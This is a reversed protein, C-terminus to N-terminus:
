GLPPRRYRGQRRRPLEREALKRLRAMLQRESPRRSTTATTITIEEGLRGELDRFMEAFQEHARGRGIVELRDLGLLKGAVEGLYRDMEELHRGETGHGPVSGGGDPRAPGRRISGVARRRPVVGSEIREVVPEGDWRVVLAQQSDMWVLAVREPDVEGDRMLTETSTSM